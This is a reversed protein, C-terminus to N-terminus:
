IGSLIKLFNIKFFILQATQYVETIRESSFLFYKKLNYSFNAIHLIERLRARKINIYINSKSGLLTLAWANRFEVKTLSASSLKVMNIIGSNANHVAPGQGLFDQRQPWIHPKQGLISM